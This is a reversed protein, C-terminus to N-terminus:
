GHGGKLVKGPNMLGAPDLAHKLREMLAIDTRSTIRYLESVRYQGIGHEATISGHEAAVLDHIFLNIHEALDPTEEISPALLVNVHLNGDGVHGFISARAGPFLKPLNADVAEILAPIRSIPTSVDHKVSKGAARESETIGERVAWFRKAQGMNQAIVADQACGDDL